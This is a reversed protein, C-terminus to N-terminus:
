HVSIIKKIVFPLKHYISQFVIKLMSNVLFQFIVCKCHLMLTLLRTYHGRAMPIKTRITIVRSRRAIHAVVNASVNKKLNSNSPSPSSSKLKLSPSTMMRLCLTPSHSLPSSLPLDPTNGVAKTSIMSSRGDSGEGHLSDASVLAAACDGCDGASCFLTSTQQLIIKNEM